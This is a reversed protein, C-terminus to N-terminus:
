EHHQFKHFLGFVVVCCCLFTLYVYWMVYAIILILLSLSTIVQWAPLKMYCLLTSMWQCSRSIAKTPTQQKLKQQQAQVIRLLPLLLSSYHVLRQTRGGWFRIWHAANKTPQNLNHTSRSSAFCFVSLFFWVACLHGKVDFPNNRNLYSVMGDM